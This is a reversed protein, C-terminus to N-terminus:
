RQSPRNIQETIPQVAVVNAYADYAHAGAQALTLTSAVALAANRAAKNM